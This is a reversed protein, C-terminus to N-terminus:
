KKKPEVPKELMIKEELIFELQENLQKEDAASVVTYGQKKVTDFVNAAVDFAIFYTSVATGKGAAQKQVQPLVVAPEPGQNNMGDTIVLVHKSTLPSKLVARCGAQVATGLPTGSGPQRYQKLWDQFTEPKFPGFPVAEATGTGSFIFLGAHIKRPSAANTAYNQLRNVIAGLARNAILYKAERGGKGNPVPEAMSGSTDYVIALAVGEEPEVAPTAGTATLAGLGALAWVWLAIGLRASFKKGNSMGTESNQNM